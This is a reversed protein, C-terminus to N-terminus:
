IFHQVSWTCNIEFLSKLVLYITNPMIDIELQELIDDNENNTDNNYNFIDHISRTTDLTDHIKELMYIDLRDFLSLIDSIYQETHEINNLKTMFLLCHMFHIIKKDSRLYFTLDRNNYSCTIQIYM